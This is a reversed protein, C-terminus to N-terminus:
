RFQFTRTGKKLSWFFQLADLGGGVSMKEWLWRILIKLYGNQEAYDFIMIVIYKPHSVRGCDRPSPSCTAFKLWHKCIIITIPFHVSTKLPIKQNPPPTSPLPSQPLIKGKLFIDHPLFFEIFLTCSKRANSYFFLSIIFMFVNKWIFTLFLM